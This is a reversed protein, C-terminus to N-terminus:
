HGSSLPLPFMLSVWGPIFFATARSQWKSAIQVLALEPALVGCAATEVDTFPLLHLGRRLHLLLYCM